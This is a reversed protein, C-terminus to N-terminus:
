SLFESVHVLYGLSDIKGYWVNDDTPLNHAQVRQAYNHTAWVNQAKWSGGGVITWLDEVHFTEPGNGMDVVVTQGAYSM